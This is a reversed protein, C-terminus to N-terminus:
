ASWDLYYRCESRTLIESPQVGINVVLDIQYDACVVFVRQGKKHLEKIKLIEDHVKGGGRGGMMYKM